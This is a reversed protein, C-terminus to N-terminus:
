TIFYGIESSNRMWSIANKHENRNVLSQLHFCFKKYKKHDMNTLKEM